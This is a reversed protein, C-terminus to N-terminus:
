SADGEARENKAEGRVDAITVGLSQHYASAESWDGRRLASRILDLQYRVLKLAKDRAADALLEAAREEKSRPKRKAKAPEPETPALAELVARPKVDTPKTTTM